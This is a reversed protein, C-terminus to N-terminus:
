SRNSSENRKEDILKFMKETRSQYTYERALEQCKDVSIRDGSTIDELASIFEVPTHAVRFYDKFDCLSALDVSVVAKGAALYEFFKM